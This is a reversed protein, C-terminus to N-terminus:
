KRYFNFLNCKNKMSIYNGNRHIVRMLWGGVSAAM